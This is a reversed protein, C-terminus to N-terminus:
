PLVPRSILLPQSLAGLFAILNQKQEESLGLPKMLSSRNANPEGGKNYFDVVEELSGLSGDHMYPASYLINRLGPTKFAGNFNNDKLIAGRGLDADKQGLNHFSQDTFNKGDHCFICRGQGTFVTLGRKAEPSLAASDGKLYQDFPTNDVILTREFAALVKGIQEPTIPSVSFTKQFAQRYFPVSDLRKLLEPLPMAMEGDSQIPGLAQEELTPSRGDWFFIQNWALNYLQPANRGLHNGLTGQGKSRGDSFGLDPNHCSACSQNRNTSVRPDFFLKHGLDVMEPTDPKDDFIEINKRNPTGLPKALCSIAAVGFVILTLSHNTKFIM